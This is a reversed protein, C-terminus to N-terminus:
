DCFYYKKQSSTACMFWSQHKIKCNCVYRRNDTEEASFRCISSQTKKGLEAQSWDSTKNKEQENFSFYPENEVVTETYTYPDVPSNQHTAVHITTTIDLPPDLVAAVDLIFSKTIITLPQFGKVIIM